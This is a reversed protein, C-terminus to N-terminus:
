DNDTATLALTWCNLTGDEVWLQMASGDAYRAEAVAFGESKGSSRGAVTFKAKRFFGYSVPKPAGVFARFKPDNGAAPLSWHRHELWLSLSTIRAGGEEALLLLRSWPSPQGERVALEGMGEYFTRGDSLSACFLARDDMHDDLGTM